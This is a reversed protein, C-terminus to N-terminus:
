VSFIRKGQFNTKGGFMNCKWSYVILLNNIIIVNKVVYFWILLVFNYSNHKWCYVDVVISCKYNCGVLHIRFTCLNLVQCSFDCKSLTFTKFMISLMKCPKCIWCILYYWISIADVFYLIVWKIIGFWNLAPGLMHFKSHVDLICVSFVNMWWQRRMVIGAFKNDVVLM